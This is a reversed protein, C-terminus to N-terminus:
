DAGARLGGARRRIAAFMAEFTARPVLAIDTGLLKLAAEESFAGREGQFAIRAKSAVNMGGGGKCDERIQWGERARARLRTRRGARPFSSAWAM